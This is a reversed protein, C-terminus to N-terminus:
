FNQLYGFTSLWKETDGTIGDICDQELYLLFPGTSLKPVPAKILDRVRGKEQEDLVTNNLDMMKFNTEVTNWENLITACIARKGLQESCTDYIYQLDCEPDTALKPFNKCLTKVGAGKIGRLNDSKDGVLAKVINYNEPLVELFKFTEEYNYLIKKTPSYVQVNSDVLQLFDRDSSMITVKHGACSGSRALYAIVDDAELKDMEISSVPLCELYDQIRSAQNRVSRMEDAKNDFIDWHVVGANKRQAKYNANMNKRHQSGGRGDWVIIVRTPNMLRMIYGVSKLFGTIGGVHEGRPNVATSVSFARMLTNLGDVLLIHDNRKRPEAPLRSLMEAYKSEM